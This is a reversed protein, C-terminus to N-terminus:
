AAALCPRLPPMADPRKPYPREGAAMAAQAGALKPLALLALKERRDAALPFLYVHNGPHRRVRMVARVRRVFTGRSESPAWLLGSRQELDERAYDEGSDESLFKEVARASVERGAADLTQTKPRNRGLYLANSSQYCSGWHGPLVPVGALTLRPVPDSYSLLVKKEPHTAKFQRRAAALFWSESNGPCKVPDNLLVFRGLEAGEHYHLGSHCTISNREEVLVGDVVRDQFNAGQSFVAVGVLEAATVARSKYFLGCAMVVPCCSGAYHHRRVFDRARGAALPEVGYRRPDLPTQAAVYGDRGDFWRQCVAPTVPALVPFFAQTEM